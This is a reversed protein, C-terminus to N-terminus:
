CGFLKCTRTHDKDLMSRVWRFAVATITYAKKDAAAKATVYLEEAFEGKLSSFRDVQASYLSFM